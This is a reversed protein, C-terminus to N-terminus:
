KKVFGICDPLKTCWRPKILCFELLLSLLMWYCILLIWIGMYGSIECSSPQHRYLQVSVKKYSKKCYEVLRKKEAAAKEDRSLQYFARSPGNPNWKDPPYTEGELQQQIRVFEPRNASVSFILLNQSMLAILEFVIHIYMYITNTLCFLSQLITM